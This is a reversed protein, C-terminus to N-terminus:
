PTTNDELSKASEEPPRWKRPHKMGKIKCIMPLSSERMRGYRATTWFSVGADDNDLVFVRGKEPYPKGTILRYEEPTIYGKTFIPYKGQDGHNAIFMDYYLRDMFRLQYHANFRRQFNGRWSQYSTRIDQYQM